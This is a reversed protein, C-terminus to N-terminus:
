GGVTPCTAEIDFPVVPDSAAFGTAITGTIRYSDGDQTMSAEGRAAGDSFAPISKDNVRGLNVFLIRSHDETMTVTVQNGPPDIVIYFEGNSSEFCKVKGRVERPNGDVFVKASGSEFPGFVDSDATQTPISPAPKPTEAASASAAIGTAPSSPQTGNQQKGGTIHPAVWIGGAFAAAVAAGGAIWPAIRRAGSNTSETSSETPPRPSTGSSPALPGAPLPPVVPAPPAPVPVAAPDPVVQPREPVHAAPETLPKPTPASRTPAPPQSTQQEVPVSQTAVSGAGNSRAMTLLQKVVIASTVALIPGAILILWLGWGIQPGITTDFIEATRSSVDLADYVAIAFSLVGATGAAAGLSVMLKSRVPTRGFNLMAFLVLAAVIGMILTITGDEGWGLANRNMGMFSMWPGMSGVAIAISAMLAVIFNPWYFPSAKIQEPRVMPTPRPTPVPPTMLPGGSDNSSFPKAAPMMGCAASLESASGPLCMLILAPGSAISTDSHRFSSAQCRGPKSKETYIRSGDTRSATPFSATRSVFEPATVTLCSPYDCTLATPMHLSFHSGVPTRTRM